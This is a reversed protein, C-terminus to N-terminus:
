RNGEIIYVDNTDILLSMFPEKDFKQEILSRMIIVKEYNWNDILDIKRSEKKVLSPNEEYQCYRKWNNDNSKASQYANEISPYTISDLIVEVPYFNSLWRYKGQFEKIM